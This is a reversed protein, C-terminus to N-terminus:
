WEREASAASRDGAKAADDHSAKAARRQYDDALAKLQGAIARDTMTQAARLLTKATELYEKGRQSIQMTM